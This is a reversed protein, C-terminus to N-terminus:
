RSDSPAMSITCRRIGIIIISAMAMRYNDQYISIGEAVWLTHVPHIWSQHNRDVHADVQMSVTSTKRWPRVYFGDSNQNSGVADANDAYKLVSIDNTTPLIGEELFKGGLLANIM